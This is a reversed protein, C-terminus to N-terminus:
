VTGLDEGYINLANHYDQMTVPNNLLLGKKIVEEFTKRSPRSMIVYLRRAADVGGLERKTYNRQMEEVTKIIMVHEDQQPNSDRYLKRKISENFNYHYLGEKSPSFKMISGNDHQVLFADEITNDYM